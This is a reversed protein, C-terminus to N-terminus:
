KRLILDFDEERYKFFLLFILLIFGTTVYIDAVNFVPFNILKFYLFDIVYKLRVRDIFNGLAGSLIIVSLIRLDKFRDSRALKLYIIILFIFVFVTTLYFFLQKNQMVGWAAGANRIYHLEFVNDILPISDNLEINNIVLYKTIQDIITLIFVSIIASLYRGAIM